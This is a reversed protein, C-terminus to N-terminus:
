TYICIDNASVINQYIVSMKGQQDMGLNVCKNIHELQSEEELNGHHMEDLQSEDEQM